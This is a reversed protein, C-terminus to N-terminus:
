KATINHCKFKLGLLAFLGMMPILKSEGLEKETTELFYKGVDNVCKLGSLLVMFPHRPFKEQNEKLIKFLKLM